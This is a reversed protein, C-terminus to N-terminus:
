VHARGIEPCYVPVGKDYAARLISDPNEINKGMHNMFDSISIPKETPMQSIVDQMFEEFDEFHTDPLYVDYIRDIGEERLQADDATDDGIYHPMSLGELADHVMNAGTTVLVDIYGDRILDAVIKRMGAPVMAGALGFFKVTKEDSIMETYIEVAKGIRRAGFGCGSLATVFQDLDMDATIEAPVIPKVLKSQGSRFLM